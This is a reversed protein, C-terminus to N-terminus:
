KGGQGRKDVMGPTPGVQGGFMMGTMQNMITEMTRAALGKMPDPAMAIDSKQPLRQEMFDFMRGAIEGGMAVGTEKAIQGTDPHIEKAMDILPRAQAIALSSLEQAVRVGILISKMGYEVGSDFIYRTGDAVPPLKLDKMLEELPKPKTVVVAKTTEPKFQFSGKKKLKSKEADVSGAAIDPDAKLETCVQELEEESTAELLRKRIYQTKGEEKNNGM